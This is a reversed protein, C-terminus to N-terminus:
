GLIQAQSWESPPYLYVLFGLCPLGLEITQPSSNVETRATSIAKLADLLALGPDEGLPSKERSSGEGWAQGQTGLLLIFSNQELIPCLPVLELCSGPNQSGAGKVLQQIISTSVRKPLGWKKKKLSIM